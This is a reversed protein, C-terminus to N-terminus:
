DETKGGMKGLCEQAVLVAWRRYWTVLPVPSGKEVQNLPGSLNQTLWDQFPFIFGRKPRNFVASPLEPVADVLLRKGKELRWKAPIAAVAAFLRMDVYPVRLELGHAMSFVDSDRLLQNRMYRTSELVGVVDLDNAFPLPLSWDNQLPKVGCMSETLLDAEKATFIGRKTHYAELWSGHGTLYSSLRQLPSAKPTFALMWAALKRMVLPMKMLMKLKPVEEFSSYGGFMEDGGLGSLVVKVGERSALKSVCWTNFGDISPQDIAALYKPLERAAEEPTIKWVTHRAGFQLATTAALDSEDYKPDHFGVSFTRIDADPGLHHRMLALLVTSDIGGSLFLGVPVDSVLHRAVSEELAERVVRIAETRPMREGSVPFFRDLGHDVRLALVESSWRRPAAESSDHRSWTLFHGAALQRIPRFLTAPEPVSGWLLFDRLAEADVPDDGRRLVRSESAFSLVGHDKRYYLPKIGLPDRAILGGGKEEDWYAFAFMGALKPLSELGERAVLRLLVETDSGSTFTEGQKELDSRLERHNYIEGNFVIVKAGKDISATKLFKGEDPSTFAEKLIMPQSGGSGTEIISIRTHVLVASSSEWIGNADPGRHGLRRLAQIAFEKDASGFQGAIGCM